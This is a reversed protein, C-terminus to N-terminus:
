ITKKKKVLFANVKEWDRAKGSAIFLLTSLVAIVIEPRPRLKLILCVSGILGWLYAVQSKRSRPLEKFLLHRHLLRMAAVKSSVFGGSKGEPAHLVTMKEILKLKHNRHFTLRMGLFIDDLYAWDTMRFEISEWVDAKNRYIGNCAPLWDADLDKNPSEYNVTDAWGNPKLINKNITGRIGFFRGVLKAVRTKVHPHCDKYMGGVGVYSPNSDLFQIGDSLYNPPLVVDDDFFAVYPTSVKSRLSYRAAPSSVISRRYVKIKENSGVIETPKGGESNLDLVLIDAEVQNLRLSRLLRNVQSWKSLTNIVITVVSKAM